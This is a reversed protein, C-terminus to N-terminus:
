TRASRRPSARRRPCRRPPVGCSTARALTSARAPRRRPRPPACPPTTPRVSAVNGMSSIKQPTRRTSASVSSRRGGQHQHDLIQVPGLRRHEVEISCRPRLLRRHQDEAGGAGLQPRARRSPPWGFPPVTMSSSPARGLLRARSRRRAPRLRRAGAVNRRLHDLPPHCGATRELLHHRHEAVRRGAVISTGGVIWASSDARRSRDRRPLAGHDARRPRRGPTRGPPRPRPARAPVPPAPVDLQGRRGPHAGAAGAAGRRVPRDHRGARGERNWCM